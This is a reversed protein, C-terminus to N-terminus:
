SRTVRVKLNIMSMSMKVDKRGDEQKRAAEAEACACYFPLAFLSPSLLVSLSMCLTFLMRSSSLSLLAAAVANAGTGPVACRRLL